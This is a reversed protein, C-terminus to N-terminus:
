SNLLDIINEKTRTGQLYDLYWNCWNWANELDEYINDEENYNEFDTRCWDLLTDAGNLGNEFIEEKLDKELEETDTTIQKWVNFLKNYLLNQVTEM